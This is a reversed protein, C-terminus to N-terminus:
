RSGDQSTVVSTSVHSKVRAPLRLQTPKLLLLYPNLRYGKWGQNEIIDDAMLERNLTQLFAKALTKRARSIRKRLSPEDIGLRKALTSAKSCRYEEPFTGADLDAEFDSALTAVLEHLNGGFQLGSSFLVKRAVADIAFGIRELKYEHSDSEAQKAATPEAEVPDVYNPQKAIPSLVM